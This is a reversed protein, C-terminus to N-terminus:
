NSQDLQEEPTPGFPSERLFETVFNPDPQAALGHLAEVGLKLKFGESPMEVTVANEDDSSVVQIQSYENVVMMPQEDSMQIAGGEAKADDRLRDLFEEDQWTLTELSLADLRIQDDETSVELLEGQASYVKRVDIVSTKAQM